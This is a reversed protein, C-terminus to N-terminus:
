KSNGGTLNMNNMLQNMMMTSFMQPNMQNQQNQSQAPGTQTNPMGNQQTMMQNLWQSQNNGMPNGSFNGMGNFNSGNSNNNNNNQNMMNMMMQFSMMDQPSMARQQSSQSSQSSQPSQSPQQQSTKLAQPRQVLTSSPTLSTRQPPVPSRTAEYVPPGLESLDAPPRLELLLEQVSAEQVVVARADIAQVKESAKSSISTTQPTLAELRTLSTPPTKPPIFRPPTDLTKHEEAIQPLYSLGQIALQAEQTDPRKAILEEYYSRAENLQGTQAHTIALYYTIKGFQEADDSTKRRLYSFIKLAEAYHGDRYAVMGDLYRKGHM